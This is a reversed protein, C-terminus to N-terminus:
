SSHGARHTVRRDHEEHEIRWVGPHRVLENHLRPLGVVRFEYSRDLYDYVRSPEIDNEDLAAYLGVSLLYGGNGLLLPGLDLVARMRDGAALDLTREPAVHRTVVIGDERFLLAAVILPLPGDRDARIDIAIRAVSGSTFIAQEEGAEDLIRVTQISLGDRGPWRSLEASGDGDAEDDEEPEELQVREIRWASSPPLSVAAQVHSGRGVGVTPADGVSRYEIEVEYHAGPYFFWVDFLVHGFTLTATGRASRSELSRYAHEAERAPASWEGGALLVRAAHGEDSDQPAGVHVVDEIEGDKLLTMRAVDCRSGAGPGAAVRVLIQDGAGEREFGDFRKVRERENKAKLRREELVRIYKEYAKVVELASGRMVIRGRDLWIANECFRVVHELSHSVILVSCGSEVLDLMRGTSKTFFYADGAGLVEDVILIEPRVATAIAFGLRAQMGLSYTRFPQDLFDGLETFDAIEETAERIERRGLGQYTLAASINERGTFEPHLGASADLLAQVDGNVEVDGETPAINETILKLLTSKGAGNRGIVGLREGAALEVDIDRLAWFERFQVRRWPLLWGIGLADVFTDGRSPFVKYMKGAGALKIVPESM